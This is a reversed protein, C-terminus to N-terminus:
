EGEMEPENPLPMWHTVDPFGNRYHEFYPEKSWKDAEKFKCVQIQGGYANKQRLFCLVWTNIDPLKDKVNIWNHNIDDNVIDIPNNIYEFPIYKVDKEIAAEYFKNNIVDYWGVRGDSTRVCQELSFKLIGDNYLKVSRM